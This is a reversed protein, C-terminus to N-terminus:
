DTSLFSQSVIRITLEGLGYRAERVNSSLLGGLALSTENIGRYREVLPATFDAALPYRTHGIEARSIVQPDFYAVRVSHAAGTGEFQLMATIPENYGRQPTFRLHAEDKPMRCLPALPAGVGDERHWNRVLKHPVKDARIASMFESPKHEGRRSVAAPTVRYSYDQLSYIQEDGTRVKAIIVPTIQAAAENYLRVARRKEESLSTLSVVSGGDRALDGWAIEAARLRCVAAAELNSRSAEAYMLLKEADELTTGHLTTALEGAPPVTSCGCIAVALLVVLM